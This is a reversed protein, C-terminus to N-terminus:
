FTGSRMMLKRKQADLKRITTAVEDPTVPPLLSRTVIVPSTGPSAISTQLFNECETVPSTVPTELFNEGLDDDVGNRAQPQIGLNSVLRRPSLCSMARKLKSKLPHLRDKGDPSTARASQSLSTSPSTPPLSGSTARAPSSSADRGDVTDGESATSAGAEAAGGEEGAGAAGAGSSGGAYMSRTIRWGGPRLLRGLTGRRGVEVGGRESEVHPSPQRVGGGGLGRLDLSPVPGPSLRVTVGGGGTGGPERGGKGRTNTDPGGASDLEALHSNLDEPGRVV